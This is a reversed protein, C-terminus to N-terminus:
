KGLMFQSPPIIFNNGQEKMIREQYRDLSGPSLNEQIRNLILYDMTARIYPINLFPTHNLAFRFADGTKAEGNVAQQYLKSIQDATGITPGGLSMVFGSGFRNTEGFLFDGYIGAGGGQLFAAQLSKVSAPRPEQGKLMLKTQMSLYGFATMWVIMNALGLLEGNGNKLANFLSNIGREGLAAPTYGRGFLERGLHNKMFSVPFAKFQAISRMLEGEVTGAITGRNLTAKTSATPDSVAVSSRDLIYKRLRDALQERADAIANDTARIGKDTLYSTIDKNSLTDVNEPVLYDNGKMHYKDMKSYLEWEAKEINHLSLVRKLNSDLKDFAYKTNKALWNSSMFAASHRGSETWWNLGNFKFYTRMLGSVKGAASTDGSFRYAVEGIMGEAYVGLHQALEKAEDASYKKFKGTVSDILSTFLDKGQYRLELAGMSIDNFSSITAAGLKSMSEAARVTAFGRAVMHNAPISTLGAVEPYIAKMIFNYEKIFDAEAKTGKKEKRIKEITRNKLRDLMNEPNTGLKRMLGTTNAMRNFTAALSERLNGTGYKANYEFWSAGDKFHLVRNQSAKKAINSSGKFGSLWDAQDNRLHNGTALNDYVGRLFDDASKTNKFTTQEDLLPFIFDRWNEFTDGRIKFMDHSQRTIYDDAEGIWAGAKNSDQRAVEQWKRIIGAMEVAQNNMGSVDLRKSIAYLAVSIEKDLSGSAFIKLLGARDIEGFLGNFYKAHLNKQEIHVSDRSGLRAENRGALLASLGIDPRDAFSNDLYDSLELFIRANTIQNKAEIARALRDNNGIEDAAKLAAEELSLAKNKNRISSITNNMSEVIDIMEENTLDRGVAKNIIQECASLFSNSM